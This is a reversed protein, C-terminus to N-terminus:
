LCSQDLRPGPRGNRIRAPDEHRDARRGRGAPWCPRPRAGVVAGAVMDSAHHIRVYAPELRWSAPWGSGSRPWCRTAARSLLSAACFASSAHGSPFSSTAPTRVPYRPRGAEVDAPARRFLRKIARTSSCRSWRRPRGVAARRRRARRASDVGWAPGVLHWIVSWDGLASAAYFMRDAVPHGRLRDLGADFATTSAPSPRPASRRVSPEAPGRRDRRSAPDARAAVLPLQVPGRGYAVPAELAARDPDGGFAPCWPKFACYACLRGPRPRFDGTECAREVARWVAETRKPLFRIPSSPRGPRSSRAPRQPVHLRIAAPRRGFVQECLFAYFHVGGLRRQEYSPRDARPRDQLRHRRPRRRRRARAPRHHGAAHPRRGPGRAAAGPRHRARRRPGGHRLLASWCARRRRRVGGGGGRDLDLLPWSPIPRPLEALAQSSAARRATPAPASRRAAARASCSSPGTCWRARPPTPAPRSPCGRSARSGSRWRARPSRRSGPPRCAPPCRTRCPDITRRPHTATASRAAVADDARRSQRARRRLRARRRGGGGPDQMPGFHRRRPSRSSGGAPFRTPWWLALRRAPEGGARGGGGPGPLDGRGSPRIHRARAARSPAPRTSPTAGCRPGHRRTPRRLWARRLGLLAEPTLVDLPPKGALERLGGRPQRVRHAPAPQTVM